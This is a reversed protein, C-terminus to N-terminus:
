EPLHPFLNFAHCIPPSHSGMLMHAEDKEFHTNQWLLWDGNTLALINYHAETIASTYSVATHIRPSISSFNFLTLNDTNKL